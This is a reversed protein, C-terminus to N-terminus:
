LPAHYKKMSPMPITYPPDSQFSTADPIPSKFALQEIVAQQASCACSGRDNIRPIPPM